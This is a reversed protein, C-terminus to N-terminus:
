LSARAVSMSSIESERRQRREVEAAEGGDAHAVAYGEGVIGERRQGAQREARELRRRDVEIDCLYTTYDVDKVSRMLPKGVDGLRYGCEEFVERWAAQEATEDDKLWGGPWSWTGDDVRRMMLVRGSPSKLIVGAARAPEAPEM